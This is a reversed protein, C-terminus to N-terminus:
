AKHLKEPGVLNLTRKTRTHGVSSRTESSIELRIQIRGSENSLIAVALAPLATQEHLTTLMMWIATLGDV